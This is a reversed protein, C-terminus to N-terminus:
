EPSSPSGAGDGPRHTPSADRSPARKVLRTVNRSGARRYDLEDVFSRVLHVGLGGVGREELPALLDPQPVDLPNFPRGDDSFEVTLDGDKAFLRIEIEHELEDAHGHDIVNTLLEELALNVALAQSEAIGHRGAAERLWAELRELEAVRNGLVIREM